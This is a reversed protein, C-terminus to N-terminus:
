GRCLLARLLGATLGAVLGIAIGAKLDVLVRADGSLEQAAALVVVSDKADVRDAVVAGAGGQNLTVTQGRAMLIGGQEVAIRNADVGLIGGQTVTVQEATFTSVSATNYWQGWSLV